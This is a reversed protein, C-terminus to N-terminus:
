REVPSLTVAGEVADMIAVAVEAKSRRPVDVRMGNSGMLVVANDDSGMGIDGGVDNLVILDLGKDELKRQANREHDDTEAAFGVVVMGARLPHDRVRRLIDVTPVLALTLSAGKKLKAPSVAAPRYDAVAAAMVLVSAGQLAACVAACMEEATSVAVVDIDDADPPPAVTTVLVVGAGRRRAEVAMANGMKGSSRNGLYRVPDIPERTGGATIVVRRGRLPSPVETM